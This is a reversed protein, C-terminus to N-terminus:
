CEDVDGWASWRDRSHHHLIESALSETGQRWTGGHVDGALQIPQHIISRQSMPQHQGVGWGIESLRRNHSGEGGPISDGGHHLVRFLGLGQSGHCQM